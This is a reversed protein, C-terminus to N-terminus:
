GQNKGSRKVPREGSRKQEAALKRQRAREAIQRFEASMESVQARAKEIKAITRAETPTLFDRWTSQETM